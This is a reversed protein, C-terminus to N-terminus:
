RPGEPKDLRIYDIQFEIYQPINLDTRVEFPSEMGAFYSVGTIPYGDHSLPVVAAAGSMLADIAAQGLKRRLPDDSLRKNRNAQRLDNIRNAAGYIEAIFKESSSKSAGENRIRKLMCECDGAIKMLVSAYGHAEHEWDIHMATDREM